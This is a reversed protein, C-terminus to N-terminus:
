VNPQGGLPTLRLVTMPNGYYVYMFTFLFLYAHEDTETAQLKRLAKARISQLVEAVSLSPSNRYESLFDEAIRPAYEDKV